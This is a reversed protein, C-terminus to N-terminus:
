RDLVSVIEVHHTFPFMDVLVSRRFEFGRERLLAVDRGCSAADCSVLVVRRPGLAAIADAGGRALGARPPDAVVADVSTGIAHAANDMSDRIVRVTAALNARADAVASPSSEVLWADGVATSLPAAFLGVGGCLDLVSAPSRELAAGVVESVLAAAGDARTQFFSPASIRFTHDAICETISVRPEWGRRTRVAVKVRDPLRAAAANAGAGRLLAMVEGTANSCRLTVEDVGDFVDMAIIESLLPHAVTRGDAAVLDHSRRKRQAFRGGLVGGRMVTRFGATALKPGAAVDADNVGGLRRLSDIVIDRKLSRLDENDLMHLDCGGCGAPARACPHAVRRDSPQVLTDISRVRGRDTPVVLDGPVADNVLVVRGDPERGLGVGGAVLREIRIPQASSM